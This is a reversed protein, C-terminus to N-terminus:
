QQEGLRIRTARTLGLPQHTAAVTIGGARCHEAIASALRERGIPDLGNGPEDLLWIPAHGAIVRAVSARRRQGTSLYRVPVDALHDIGMIGLARQVDITDCGDLAAWWSLADALAREPDLAIAEGAWAVAGESIVRGAAPELLGAAIRLLSSKGAGNPGTVLAAGGAEIHADIGEFVLRDARVCALRRLELFAKM